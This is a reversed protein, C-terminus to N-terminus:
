FLPTMSGEETPKCIKLLDGSPGALQGDLDIIRKDFTHLSGVAAKLASALHVADPPKIGYLGSAQISHAKSAVALDLTVM